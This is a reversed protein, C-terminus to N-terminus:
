IFFRHAPGPRGARGSGVRPGGVLAPWQCVWSFIFNYRRVRVPSSDTIRAFAINSMTYDLYAAIINQMQSDVHVPDFDLVSDYVFHLSGDRQRPPTARYVQVSCM